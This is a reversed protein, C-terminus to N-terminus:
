YYITSNGNGLRTVLARRKLDVLRCEEVELPEQLEAAPPEVLALGQAEVLEDEVVAAYVAVLGGAEEVGDAGVAAHGEGEAAVGDFVGDGGEGGGEVGV